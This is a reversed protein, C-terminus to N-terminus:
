EPSHARNGGNRYGLLYLTLMVMTAAKLARGLLRWCILWLGLVRAAPFLAMTLSASLAEIATGLLAMALYVSFRQRLRFMYFAALLSAAADLTTVVAWLNYLWATWGM